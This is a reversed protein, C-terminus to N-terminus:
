SHWSRRNKEAYFFKSAKEIKLFVIYINLKKEWQFWYKNYKEM